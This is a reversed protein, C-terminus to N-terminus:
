FPNANDPLYNNLAAEPINVSAMKVGGVRAERKYEAGEIQKLETKVREAKGSYPEARFLDLLASHGYQIILSNDRFALGLSGLTKTETEAAKPTAGEERVKSILEAVTLPIAGASAPLRHTLIRMLAADSDKETRAFRSFDFGSALENAAKETLGWESEGFALCVSGCVLSAWKKAERDSVKLAIFSDELKQTNDATYPAYRIARAALRSSFDPTDVTLRQLRRADTNREAKEAEALRKLEILAFRSADRSRDLYPHISSFLGCTKTKYGVAAGSSSGKGTTQGEKETGARVFSLVKQMNEQGTKDDSEAEDFLFPLAGGSLRQRLHAESTNAAVDVCFAGLAQAILGRTHTKGAEAAGALWVNARFDLVGLLFGNVTWGALVTGASKNRTQVELLRLFNASEADALPKDIAVPLCDGRTYIFGSPSHWRTEERKGDVILFPTGDNVVIHGADRWVGRGKLRVGAQTDSWVGQASCLERLRKGAANYDAGQGRVANPFVAAWWSADAELRTLATYNSLKNLPIAAVQALDHPLFFANDNDYGLCDFRWQTEAPMQESINKESETEIVNKEWESFSKAGINLAIVKQVKEGRALGPLRALRGANKTAADFDRLLNLSFVKKAKADFDEKTEADLRVWAHLSKNGSHIVASIPLGSARLIAWQQEVSLKDAELLLHRFASCGKDTGDKEKRPNLGILAGNTKNAGLLGADMQRILSERDLFDARQWQKADRCIRITEGEGFLVRLTEAASIIGEPLKEPEPLKVPEAKEKRIAPARYNSATPRENLLYGVPLASKEYADRLKRELDKQGWQPSCHANYENLLSLAESYPLNFGRALVQAAEFTAAQGGQGSIAPPMKMLYTRARESVTKM